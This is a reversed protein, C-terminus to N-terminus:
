FFIYINQDEDAYIFLYFQYDNSLLLLRGVSWGSCKTAEEFQWLSNTYIVEMGPFQFNKRNREDQKNVEKLVSLNPIKRKENEKSRQERILYTIPDTSEHSGRYSQLHFTHPNSFAGVSALDM